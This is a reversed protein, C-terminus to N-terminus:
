KKLIEKVKLKLNKMRWYNKYQKPAKFYINKFLKLKVKKNKINRIEEYIKIFYNHNYETNNLLENVEKFFSNQYYVDGIEESYLYIKIMYLVNTYQRYKFYEPNNNYFNNLFLKLNKVMRDLELTMCKKHRRYSVGLKDLTDFKYGSSAIKLWMNWDEMAFLEENFFGVKSFVSRKTVAAHVPFLNKLILDKFYDSSKVPGIKNSVRKGKGDILNWACSLVDISLDKNLKDIMNELFNKYILDDSDLFHIYKGKALKLGTNRAGALGKNKQYFYKIKNGDCYDKAVRATNDTSGDDIIICEYNKFSQEKVSKLTDTLFKDQNFAPIVITVEVV